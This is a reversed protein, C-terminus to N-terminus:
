RCKWWWSQEKKQKNIAVYRDVYEEAQRRTLKSQGRTLSEMQADDIAVASNSLVGRIHGLSM